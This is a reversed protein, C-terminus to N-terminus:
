SLTVIGSRTVGDTGRVKISLTTNNVLEFSLTANVSLTPTTTAIGVTTIGSVQNINRYIETYGFKNVRIAPNITPFSGIFTPAYSDIRFLDADNPALTSIGTPLPGFGDGSKTLTDFIRVEGYNSIDFAPFIPVQGSPLYTQAIGVINLRFNSNNNNEVTFLQSSNAGSNRQNKSLVFSGNVPSSTNIGADVATAFITNDLTPSNQTTLLIDNKIRLEKQIDIGYIPNTTGFGINGNSLVDFTTVINREGPALSSVGVFHNIKFLSYNDNVVTFLQGGDLNQELDGEFVSSGRTPAQTTIGPTYPQLIINTLSNLSPNLVESLILKDQIQAKNRFTVNPGTFYTERAIDIDIAPNTTGFGIKGDQTIDLVISGESGGFSQKTYGRVSFINGAGNTLSFLSAPSYTVGDTTIGSSSDFSIAGRNDTSVGVAPQYAINRYHNLQINESESSGASTFNVTNQFLDRITTIGTSSVTLASKAESDNISYYVDSDNDISFLNSEGSQYVVSGNNDSYHKASIRTSESSGSSIFDIKPLQLSNEFFASSGLGLTGGISINNTVNFNNKLTSIGSEAIQLVPTGDSDSIVYALDGENSVSFLQQDGSQYVISGGNDRYHKQTIIEGETVGASVIRLDGSVDLSGFVSLNAKPDTTGIGVKGDRLVFDDTFTIRNKAM